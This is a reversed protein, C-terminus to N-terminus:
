RSMSAQKQNSIIQSLQRSIEQAQEATEGAAGVLLQNQGEIMKGTAEIECQNKQMDGLDKQADSEVIELAGKATPLAFHTTVLGVKEFLGITQKSTDFSSLPGTIHGVVSMAGSLAAVVGSFVLLNHSKDQADQEYQQGQQAVTLQTDASKGAAISEKGTLLMLKAMVAQSDSLMSSMSYHETSM